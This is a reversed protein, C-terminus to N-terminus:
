HLLFVIEFNKKEVVNPFCYFALWVLQLFRFIGYQSTLKKRIRFRKVDDKKIDPLKIISGDTQKNGSGILFSSPGAYDSRLQAKESVISPRPKDGM